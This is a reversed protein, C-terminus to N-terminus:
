LREANTVLPQLFVYFLTKDWLIHNHLEGQAKRRKLDSAVELFGEIEEKTFDLLTFFDRGKFTTTQM